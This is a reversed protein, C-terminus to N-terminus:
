SGTARRGSRVFKWMLSCVMRERAWAPKEGRIYKPLPWPWVALSVLGQVLASGYNQRVVSEYALALHVGSLAIRRRGWRRDFRFRGRRASAMIARYMGDLAQESFQLGGMEPHKRWSLAPPGECKVLKFRDRLRLLYEFDEAADFAPDFGGITVWVTRTWMICLLIDNRFWLAREPPATVFNGTPQGAEDIFRCDCYALGADPGGSRLGAVLRGVADREFVDDQALRTFFEGRAAEFGTNFARSVGGNTERRVLRVRGDQEAYRAAIAACSDPSADDVVIIELPEYTQRLCSEIAEALFREGRYCPIVISVLAPVEAGSM